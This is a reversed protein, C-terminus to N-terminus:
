KTEYLFLFQTQVDLQRRIVKSVTDRAEADAGKLTVWKRRSAIWKKMIPETNVEHLESLNYTNFISAEFTDDGLLAREKSKVINIHSAAREGNCLQWMCEVIYEAIHLIDPIPKSCVDSRKFLTEFVSGLGTLVLVVGKSTAHKPGTPLM